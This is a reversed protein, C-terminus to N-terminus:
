GIGLRHEVALCKEYQRLSPAISLSRSSDATVSKAAPAAMSASTAGLSM